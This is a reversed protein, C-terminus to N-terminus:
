VCLINIIFHFLLRIAVVFGILCRQFIELSVFQCGTYPDVFIGHFVREPVDILFRRYIHMPADGIFDCSDLCFIGVTEACLFDKVQQIVEGVDNRLSTRHGTDAVVMLHGREGVAEHYPKVTGGVRITGNDANVLFLHLQHFATASHSMVQRVDAGFARRDLVRGQGRGPQHREHFAIGVGGALHCLVSPPPCQHQGDGDLM